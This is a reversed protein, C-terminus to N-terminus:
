RIPMRKTKREFSVCDSQHSIQRKSEYGRNSSNFGVNPANDAANVAPNIAPAKVVGKSQIFVLIIREWGAFGLKKFITRLWPKDMNNVLNLCRTKHIEMPGVINKPLKLRNCSHMEDFLIFADPFSHICDNSLNKRREKGGKRGLHGDSDLCLAFKNAQRHFFAIKKKKTSNQDKTTSRNAVAKKGSLFAWSAEMSAMKSLYLDWELPSLDEKENKIFEPITDM